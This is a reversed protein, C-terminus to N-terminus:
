SMDVPDVDVTISKLRTRLAKATQLAALLARLDSATRTRVLLDYRYKGRLRALVCPNPGVVDAEPFGVSRITDMIRGALREAEQRATQERPHALEIRALRRFPPLAFRHRLPLEQRVFAEYDHALACRLAPLEPATTQVVVQGVADARGARGAVQTILQFLREHARFDATLATSDAHIVGVFSVYPFDLGKAIMQTGILVDIRRSEFEDLTQRYQRRHKITDRDARQLRAKPFLRRVVDEVRQTGVGVQVLEEGCTLNPCFRPIPM